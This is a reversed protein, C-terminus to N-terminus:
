ERKESDRRPENDAKPTNIAALMQGCKTCRYRRSIELFLWGGDNVKDAPVSAGCGDTCRIESQNM